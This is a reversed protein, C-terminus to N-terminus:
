RLVNSTEAARVFRQADEELLFGEAKLEAAAKKVANVYGQHNKIRSEQNQSGSRFDLIM